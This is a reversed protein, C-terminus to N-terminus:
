NSEEKSVIDWSVNVFIYEPGVSNQSKKLTCNIPYKRKQYEPQVYTETLEFDFLLKTYKETMVEKSKALAYMLVAVTIEHGLSEEMVGVEEVFNEFHVQGNSMSYELDEIPFEVEYKENFTKRYM